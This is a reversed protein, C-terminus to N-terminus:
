DDASFCACRILVLLFRLFSRDLVCMLVDPMTFSYCPKLSQYVKLQQVSFRPIKCLRISVAHLYVTYEVTGVIGTDLLMNCLVGVLFRHLHIKSSAAVRWRPWLVTNRNLFRKIGSVTEHEGKQTASFIHRSCNRHSLRLLFSVHGIEEVLQVLLQVCRYDFSGALWESKNRSKFLMSFLLWHASYVGNWNWRQLRKNKKASQHFRNLMKKKTVAEQSSYLLM